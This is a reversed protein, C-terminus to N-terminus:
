LFNQFSLGDYLFLPTLAWQSAGGRGEAVGWVGGRRPLERSGWALAAM